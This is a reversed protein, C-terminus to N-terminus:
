RFREAPTHPLSRDQRLVGLVFFAGAFLSLGAFLSFPFAPSVPIARITRHVPVLEGSRQSWLTLRYRGDDPPLIFAAHPTRLDVPGEFLTLDQGFRLWSDLRHRLVLYGSGEGATKQDILRMRPADIRGESEHFGERVPEHAPSTSRPLGVSLILLVSATLLGGFIFRGFPVIRSIRPHTALPLGPLSGLALRGSFYGFLALLTLLFLDNRYLGLPTAVRIEKSLVPAGTAADTFSLTYTGPDWLALRITNPKGTTRPLDLVPIQFVTRGSHWYSVSLFASRNKIVRLLLTRGAPGNNEFNDPLTVSFSFQARPLAPSLVPGPLYTARYLHILLGAASIILVGTVFPLFARLVSKM